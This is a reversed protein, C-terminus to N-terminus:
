TTVEVTNVLDGGSWTHTLTITRLVTTGDAPDYIKWVESTPDGSTYTIDVRMRRNSAIQSATQFIEQYDIEGNNPGTTHYTTAVSGDPITHLIRDGVKESVHTSLGEYALGKAVVTDADAQFQRPISTTASRKLPRVLAM